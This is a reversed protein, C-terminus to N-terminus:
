FVLFFYRDLNEIKMKARLHYKVPFVGMTNFPLSVFTLVIKVKSQPASDENRGLSFDNEDDEANNTPTTTNRVRYREWTSLEEEDENKENKEDGSHDQVFVNALSIPRLMSEENLTQEVANENTTVDEMKKLSTGGIKLSKNVLALTALYYFHAYNFVAELYACFRWM